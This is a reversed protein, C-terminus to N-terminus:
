ISCKSYNRGIDFDGCDYGGIYDANSRSRKQREKGEEDTKGGKNKRKVYNKLENRGEGIGIINEKIYMITYLEERM